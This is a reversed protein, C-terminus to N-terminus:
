LFLVLAPLILTSLVSVLKKSTGLEGDWVGGRRTSFPILISLGYISFVVLPSIDFLKLESTALRVAAAPISSMIALAQFHGISIKRFNLIPTKTISRDLISCLSYFLGIVGVNILLALIVGVYIAANDLDSAEQGTYEEQYMENISGVAAPLNTLTLIGYSVFAVVWVARSMKPEAHLITREPALNGPHANTTM